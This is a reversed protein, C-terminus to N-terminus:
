FSIKEIYEKDKIHNFTGVNFKRLNKLAFTYIKSTKRIKIEIKTNGNEKLLKQLDNLNSQNKLEITVKDYEKKTFESLGVLKKINIRRSLNNQSSNDKQLTLIFSNATKLAERNLVLLDSFLFLEFESELDSFKVIAFPTGKSSKKEQISMITGAVLASSENSQTFHNFSSIRMKKFYDKYVKLPHDSMYFGISQFENMLMQNNSWKNKNEVKFVLENDDSNKSFLSNQNSEKEEWLKKNLQIIKPISDFM